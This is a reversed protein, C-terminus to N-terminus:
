MAHIVDAVPRKSGKWGLTQLSAYVARIASACYTRPAMESSTLDHCAVLRLAGKKTDLRRADRDEENGSIEIDSTWLSRILLVRYRAIRLRGVRM